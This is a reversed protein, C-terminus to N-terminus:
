VTAVGGATSTVVLLLAIGVLIVLFRHELVHM